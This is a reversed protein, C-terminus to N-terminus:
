EMQHKQQNRRLRWAHGLRPRVSSAKSCSDTEASSKRGKGRGKVKNYESVTQKTPITSTVSNTGISPEQRVGSTRTTSYTGDEGRSPVNSRSNSYKRGSGHHHRRSSDRYYSTTNGGRTSSFNDWIGGNNAIANARRGALANAAQKDAARKIDLLDKRDKLLDLLVESLTKTENLIDLRLRDEDKLDIQECAKSAFQRWEGDVEARTRASIQEAVVKFVDGRAKNPGLECCEYPFRGGLGRENISTPFPELLLNLVPESAGFGFALHIPLMGENDTCQISKPYLEILKKVVVAPASYSIAAHLPLQSWEPIGEQDYATIWTKVQLAPSPSKLHEQASALFGNSWKGTTLFRLVGEWNEKEIERFLPTASRYSTNLVRSEESNASSDDGTSVTYKSTFVDDYDDQGAGLADACACGFPM